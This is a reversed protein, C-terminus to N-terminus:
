YKVVALASCVFVSQSAPSQAGVAFALRRHGGGPSDM